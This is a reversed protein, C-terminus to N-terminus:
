IFCYGQECAEFREADREQLLRAHSRTMPRNALQEQQQQLRAQSRTLPGRKRLIQGQTRTGLYLAVLRMHKCRNSEADPCTCTIPSDKRIMVKYITADPTKWRRYTENVRQSRVHFVNKNKPNAEIFGRFSKGDIMDFVPVAESKPDPLGRVPKLPVMELMNQARDERNVGYRRQWPTTM